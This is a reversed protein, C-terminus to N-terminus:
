LGLKGRQLHALLNDVTAHTVDLMPNPWVGMALVALALLGLVIFEEAKLDKLAASQCQDGRRFHGAQVDV